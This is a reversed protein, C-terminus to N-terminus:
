QFEETKSETLVYEVRTTLTCGPIKVGLELAKRIKQYDPCKKWYSEPLLKPDAIDIVARRYVEYGAQEAARSVICDVSFPSGLAAM